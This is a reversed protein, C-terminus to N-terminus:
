REFLRPCNRNNKGGYQDVQVNTIGLHALLANFFRVEEIGEGLLLKEKTIPSGPRYM